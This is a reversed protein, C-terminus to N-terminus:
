QPARELRSEVIKVAVGTRGGVDEVRVIEGRCELMLKGPPSDFTVSFHISEGIRMEADTEFFIGSPSMNRTMGTRAGDVTVPVAASVRQQTRGVGPRTITPRPASKTSEHNGMRRVKIRM